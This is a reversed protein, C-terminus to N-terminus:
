TSKIIIKRNPEQVSEKMFSLFTDQYNEDNTYKRKDILQRSEEDIVYIMLKNKRM